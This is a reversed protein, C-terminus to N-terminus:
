RRRPRLTVAVTAGLPLKTGPAPSQTVVVLAGYHKRPMGIRGLKCHAKSLATRAGALSRGKLLPVICREEGAERTEREEEERAQRGPEDSDSAPERARREQLEREEREKVQARERQEAEVAIQKLEQQRQPNHLYPAEVLGSPITFYAGGAADPPDSPADDLYACVGYVNNAEPTYTYVKSFSGGGLPDGDKSSLAVEGLRESYEEYPDSACQEGGSEAYVYLRHAGDAVGEVTISLPKNITPKPGLSLTLSEAALAPATM